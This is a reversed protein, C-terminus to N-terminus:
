NILKRLRDAPICHKFVMQLSNSQGGQKAYYISETSRVIGVVQGQANLVPAGSSGRAYDATIDIGASVGHRTPYSFYRTVVGATFSYFHNAPHSIVYINSGVPAEQQDKAIPLPSLSDSKVQLIALDDCQSAALVRQVPLVHGDATLVVLTKKKASDVVHYNTVIAGSASVAFGTATTAHWRNCKGCLYLGAVVVVSPQARAYLESPALPTDPSSALPLSCRDLELQKILTPMDTFGQREILRQGDRSIRALTRRDQVSMLGAAPKETTIPQQCDDGPPSAALLAADTCAKAEPPASPPPTEHQQNRLCLIAFGVLVFIYIARM